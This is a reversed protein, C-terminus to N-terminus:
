FKGGEKLYLWVVFKWRENTAFAADRARMACRDWLSKDKAKDRDFFLERGSPTWRDGGDALYSAADFDASNSLLRRVREVRTYPKIANTEKDDKLSGALLDTIKRKM